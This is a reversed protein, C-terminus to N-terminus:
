YVQHTKFVVFLTEWLIKFYLKLSYREVWELDLDLINWVSLNSRGSIQALGTIGPLVQFRALYKPPFMKVESEILPRPGVLSMHGCFVQFLQPLEDLSLRRLVKGIKTVRDDNITQVNPEKLRALKQGEFKEAGVRMTRFKTMTIEKMGLGVRPQRFLFPWGDFIVIIAAVVIIVPFTSVLLVGSIMLDMVRISLSNKSVSIPPDMEKAMCEGQLSVCAVPVGTQHDCGKIM